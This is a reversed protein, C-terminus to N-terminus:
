ISRLNEGRSTWAGAKYEWGPGIRYCFTTGAYFETLAEEGTTKSVRFIATHSEEFDDPSHKLPGLRIDCRQSFLLRYIRDRLERPLPLTKYQQLTDTKHNDTKNHSTWSTISKIFSKIKPKMDRTKGAM